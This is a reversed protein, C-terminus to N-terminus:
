SYLPAPLGQLGSAKRLNAQSLITALAMFLAQLASQKRDKSFAIVCTRLAVGTKFDKAASAMTANTHAAFAAAAAAPQARVYDGMTRFRVGGNGLSLSLGRM